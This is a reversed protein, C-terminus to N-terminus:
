IKLVFANVTIVVVKANELLVNATKIVRKASQLQVTQLVGIKDQEIIVSNAMQVISTVMVFVNVTTVTAKANTPFVIATEKM